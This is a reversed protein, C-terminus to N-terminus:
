YTVRNFIGSFIEAGGGNLINYFDDSGSTGFDVYSGGIDDLSFDNMVFGKIIEFYNACIWSLKDPTKHM